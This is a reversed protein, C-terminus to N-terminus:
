GVLRFFHYTSFYFHTAFFMALPVNNLRHANPMTYAAQLVSYFYHTYWYNGIFSYVALWVNAKFSYREFLARSADPSQCFGPWLVPQLLFPLALGGCVIVYMNPTFDEYLQFAVIVAFAVIWVPTYYAVFLEYARKSNETKEDPLFNGPSSLPKQLLALIAVFAFLSGLIITMTMAIDMSANDDDDASRM